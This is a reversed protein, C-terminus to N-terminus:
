SRPMAQASACSTPCTHQRAHPASAKAGCAPPAAVELAATAPLESAEHRCCWRGAHRALWDQLPESTQPSWLATGRRLRVGALESGVVHIDPIVLYAVLPVPGAREPRHREKRLLKPGAPMCPGPRTSPTICCPSPPGEGDQVLIGDTVFAFLAAVLPALDPHEGRPWACRSGAIAAGYYTAARAWGPIPPEPEALVPAHDGGRFETMATAPM